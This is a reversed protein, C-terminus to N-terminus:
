IRKLQSPTKGTVKKFVSTFYDVSSFGLMGSVEYVKYRGSLLLKEAYRIRFGKYFDGFTQGTKQKFMRGFYDKNFGFHDAAYETSLTRKESDALLEKLRGLFKEDECEFNSLYEELAETYESSVLAESVKKSARGLAELMRGEGVPETLYDIAGAIFAKRMSELDSYPSIVICAISNSVMGVTNLVSEPDILPPRNCCIVIDAEHRTCIGKLEKLDNARGIIGYGNERWLPLKKLREFAMNNNDFILVRYSKSM